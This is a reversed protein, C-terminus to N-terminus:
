GASETFVETADGHVLAVAAHLHHTRGALRALHARAAAADAPKHFIEDGLALVQDAGVVVRGPHRAAVAEAKARALAEALAVPTLGGAEAELAREDVQPSTTEM